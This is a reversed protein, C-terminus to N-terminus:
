ALPNSKAWLNCLICYTLNFTLSFSHFLVFIHVHWFCLIPTLGPYLYAGSLDWFNSLSRHILWPQGSFLFLIYLKRTKLSNAWMALSAPLELIQLTPWSAPSGPSLQYQLGLGATKGWNIGDRDREMWPPLTEASIAWRQEQSRSPHSNPNVRLRKISHNGLLMKPTREM